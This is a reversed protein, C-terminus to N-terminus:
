SAGDGDQNEYEAGPDKPDPIRKLHQFCTHSTVYKLHQSVNLEKSHYDMSLTDICTTSKLLHAVRNPSRVFDTDEM